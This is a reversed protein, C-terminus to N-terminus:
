TADIEQDIWGLKSPEVDLEDYLVAPQGSMDSDESQRIPICIEDLCAGEPKLEFGNVKPLDAKAVWLDNPDALTREIRAVGESSVITAGTTAMAAPVAALSCALAVALTRFTEKM